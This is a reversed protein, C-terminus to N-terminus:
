ICCFDSYKHTQPSYKGPHITQIWGPGRQQTRTRSGQMPKRRTSRKGGVCRLCATLNFRSQLHDMQTFTLKFLQHRISLRGPCPSGAERGFRLQSQSWGGAVPYAALCVSQHIELKRLKNIQQKSSLCPCYYKSDLSMDFAASHTRATVVLHLRHVATENIITMLM